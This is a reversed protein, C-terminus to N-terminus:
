DRGVIERLEAIRTLRARARLQTQRAAEGSVGLLEGVEKLKMPRGGDLGYRLRVVRAQREPLASLAREVAERASSRVAFEYPEPLSKDPILDVLAGGGGARVADLSACGMPLGATRRVSDVSAGAFSAIEADSPERGLTGSLHRRAKGRRMANEMVNVPIRITRGRDSLARMIAARIRWVAYTIFRLGRGPDFRGAAEILGVNGEDILDSLPLGNGRYKRAVSVVFLLNAEVVRNVLLRLRTEGATGKARLAAIEDFAAKEEDATMLPIKGICKLYSGLADHGNM